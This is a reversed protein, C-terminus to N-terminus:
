FTVQFMARIPFIINLMNFKVFNHHVYKNGKQKIGDLNLGKPSLLDPGNEKGKKTVYLVILVFIHVQYNKNSPLVLLIINTALSHLVVM